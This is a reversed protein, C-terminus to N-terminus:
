GEVRYGKPGFLALDSGESSVQYVSSLRNREICIEYLGPDEAACRPCREPFGAVFVRQHGREGVLNTNWVLEDGV